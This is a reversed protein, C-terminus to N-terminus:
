RLPHHSCYSDRHPSQMCYMKRSPPDFTTKVKLYVYTKAAELKVENTLFQHWTQTYDRISFGDKPGVDLQHLSMLASNILVIIDMDFVAYNDDIGLMKKITALISDQDYNM